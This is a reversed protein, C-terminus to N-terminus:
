RRRFRWAKSPDTEMWYGRVNEALGQRELSKLVRHVLEEPLGTVEALEMLRRSRQRVLERVPGEAQEVTVGRRTSRHLLGKPGGSM